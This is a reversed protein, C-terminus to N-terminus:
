EKIYRGLDFFLDNINISKSVGKDFVILMEANKIKASNESLRTKAKVSIVDGIKSIKVIKFKKVKAYRVNDLQNCQIFSIRSNFVYDDYRSQLMQLMKALRVGIVKGDIRSTSFDPMSYDIDIKQPYEITKEDEGQSFTQAKVNVCAISLLALLFLKQIM